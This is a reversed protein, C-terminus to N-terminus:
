ERSEIIGLLEAINEITFDADQAEDRAYGYLAGVSFFGNDRAARLDHIRDGVMYGKDPNAKEKIGRLMTSKTECRSIRTSVHSFYKSIGFKHLIRGAYEFPSNTCLALSHGGAHLYSLVDEVGDYLEGYADVAEFEYADLARSVEEIPADFPKTRLWDDLVHGPEGIFSYLFRDSPPAISHEVLLRKIAPIFSTEARYLTGDLDFAVLIMMQLIDM